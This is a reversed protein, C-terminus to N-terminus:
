KKLKSTAPVRETTHKQIRELQEKFDLYAQSWDKFGPCYVSDSFAMAEVCASQRFVAACLEKPEVTSNKGATGSCTSFRLRSSGLDMPTLLKCVEAPELACKELGSVLGLALDLCKSRCTKFMPDRLKNEKEAFNQVAVLQAKQEATLEADSSSALSRDQKLNNKKAAMFREYQPNKFHKSETMLGTYQDFCSDQLTLAPDSCETIQHANFFSVRNSPEYARVDVPVLGDRGEVMSWVNIKGTRQDLCLSNLEATPQDAAGASAEVAKAQQAQCPKLTQWMPPKGNAPSAARAQVNLAGVWGMVIFFLRFYFM